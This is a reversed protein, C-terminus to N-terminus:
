HSSSMRLSVYESELVQVLNVVVWYLVLAAAFSYFFFVILLTLLLAMRNAGQSSDPNNHRQRRMSYINIFGLALPLLNLDMGLGPISRSFAFVRDPLSLDNIWLFPIERFVVSETTVAFLTILIPLQVFLALSGKLGSWSSVGYKKYIALIAESQEIGKYKQKIKNIEPIMKSQVANFERQAVASWINIPFTVIRVFLALCIIAFGLSGTAVSVKQLFREILFGLPKLPSWLDGFMIEEHRSGQLNTGLLAIANIDFNVTVSASAVSQAVRKRDLVPLEIDDALVMVGGDFNNEGIVIAVHRAALSGGHSNTEQDSDKLALKRDYSYFFDALSGADPTHHYLGPGIYISGTLESGLDTNGPDVQVTMALPYDDRRLEYRRVLQVGSEKHVGVFSATNRSINDVSWHIQSTLPEGKHEVALVFLPRNERQLVYIWREFVKIEWFIVSGDIGLGIRNKDNTIILDGAM